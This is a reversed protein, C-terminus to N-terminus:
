AMNGEPLVNLLEQGCRQMTEDDPRAQMAAVVVVRGGAQAARQRRASVAASAGSGCANALALCGAEQVDTVLPHARMADVVLEIAGAEAARQSRALGAEDFGGCMSALARCGQEQVDVQPHARMAAVVAEIAGAEAARALEAAGLGCCIFALTCCGQEQVSEDGPHARMAEVVAELAGAEVAAQGSGALWCAEYFRLCAEYAVRAVAVHARLVAVADALGMEAIAEDSPPADHPAPGVRQRQRRGGEETEVGELARVRGALPQLAAVQQQLQQNQGRLEQCEAQLAAVQRQYQAQLPAMMRQCIAFPCVAEHAAQESMMGAWVCGAAAVACATPRQSCAALHAAKAGRTTAEGCHECSWELAAIAREIAKNRNVQPIPQRCEPCSRPDLRNWCDACYCHGENCQHVEGEPLTLCVPCELAEAMAARARGGTLLLAEKPLVYETNTPNRTRYPHLYDSEDRYM